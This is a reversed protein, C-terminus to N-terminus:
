AEPLDLYKGYHRVYDEDIASLQEVGFNLLAESQRVFDVFTGDYIVKSFFYLPHGGPTLRAWACFSLMVDLTSTESQMWHKKLELFIGREAGSRFRLARGIGPGARQEFALQYRAAVAQFSSDAEGLKREIEQKKINMKKLSVHCSRHTQFTAARDYGM